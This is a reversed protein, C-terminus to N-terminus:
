AGLLPASPGHDTQVRDRGGQKAQYLRTDARATWSSVTDGPAALAVGVSITLRPLQPDHADRVAECLRQAIDNAYARTAGPLLVLFEEGGWRAVTDEARVHAQLTRAVHQLALDGVLHGHEDNVRKFHDLDLLLLACPASAALLAEIRDYLARRNHLGTLPDTHALHWLTQAQARSRILKDSYLGLTAVLTLIAGTQTTLQLDSPPHLALATLLAGYLVTAYLAAHRARLVIFATVSLSIVAFHLTAAPPTGNRVAHLLQLAFAGTAAVLLTREVLRLPIRRVNLMLLLALCAALSFAPSSEGPRMELTGPGGLLAPLVSAVLGACVALTYVRRKAADAHLARDPPGATTM